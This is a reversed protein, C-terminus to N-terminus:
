RIGTVYFTATEGTDCIVGLEGFGYTDLYTALVPIMLFGGPPIPTDATTAADDLWDM